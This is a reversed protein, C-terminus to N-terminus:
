DCTLPLTISASTNALPNHNLNFNVAVGVQYQSGRNHSLLGKHFKPFTVLVAHITAVLAHFRSLKGQMLTVQPWRTMQSQKDAASTTPFYERAVDLLQIWVKQLQKLLCESKFIKEFNNLGLKLYFFNNTTTKHILLKYNEQTVHLSVHLWSYNNFYMQKDYILVWVDCWWSYNNIDYLM